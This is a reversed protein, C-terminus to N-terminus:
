TSKPPDDDAPQNLRDGLKTIGSNLAKMGQAAASQAIEQWDAERVKTKLREKEAEVRQNVAKDVQEQAVEKGKAAAISAQEGVKDTIQKRTDSEWAQQRSDSNWIATVAKSAADFVAKGVTGAVAAAATMLENTEATNAKKVPKEPPPEPSKEENLINIEIPENDKM